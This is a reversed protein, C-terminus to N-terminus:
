DASVLGIEQKVCVTVLSAIFLAFAAFSIFLGKGWSM